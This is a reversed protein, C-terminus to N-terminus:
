TRISIKGNPQVTRLTMAGIGIPLPKDAFVIRKSEWQTNTSSYISLPENTRGVRGPFVLGRGANGFENQMLARIQHTLFDAQIHSDGIHLISIKQSSNKKQQYLKEFFSSLSTNNTIENKENQLFSFGNARLMAITDQAFVTASFLLIGSILLVKAM